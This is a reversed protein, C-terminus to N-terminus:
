GAAESLQYLRKCTLALNLVHSRDWEGSEAVIDLVAGLLENPLSLLSRTSTETSTTM